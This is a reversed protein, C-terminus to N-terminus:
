GREKGNIIEPACGVLEEKSWVHLTEDGIRACPFSSLQRRTQHPGAQRRCFYAGNVFVKTPM